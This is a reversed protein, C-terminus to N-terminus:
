TAYGVSLYARPTALPLTGGLWKDDGTAILLLLLREDDGTTLLLILREDDGTTLLLILEEDDGTTPLFPEASM